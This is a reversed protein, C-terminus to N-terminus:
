SRDGIEWKRAGRGCLPQERSLGLVTVCFIAHKGGGGADAQPRVQALLQVPRGAAGAEAAVGEDDLGQTLEELRIKVGGERLLGAALAECGSPM